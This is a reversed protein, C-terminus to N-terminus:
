SSGNPTVVTGVPDDAHGRGLERAERVTTKGSSSWGCSCVARYAVTRTTECRLETSFQRLRIPRFTLAHLMPGM